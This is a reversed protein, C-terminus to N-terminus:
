QQPSPPYAPDGGAFGGGREAAKPDPGHQNPGPNGDQAWFVILVILGVCTLIILLWWGSRNTDHLRRIAVAITPLLVALGYLSGLLGNGYNGYDTGIVRDIINFAISIIWNILLFFWFEKRRARGSFEVYKKLVTTYWEM